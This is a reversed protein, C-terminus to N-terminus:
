ILARRLEQVAAREADYIGSVHESMAEFLALMDAHDFPPGADAKARLTWLEEAAIAAASAGADGDAIISEQIAATLERMQGFPSHDAPL